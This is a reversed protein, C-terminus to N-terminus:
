VLLCLYMAKLTELLLQSSFDGQCPYLDRTGDSTTSGIGSGMSGTLRRCKKIAKSFLKGYVSTGFWFPNEALHGSSYIHWNICHSLKIHFHWVFVGEHRFGWKIFMNWAEIAFWESRYCGPWFACRSSAESEQFILHMSVGVQLHSLNSHYSM